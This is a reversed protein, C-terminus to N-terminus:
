FRILVCRAPAGDLGKFKLPLCVCFYHGIPVHHLALGEIIPIGARLLLRHNVLDSHAARDISLTDIGIAKIGQQIFFQILEPNLHGAGAVQPNNVHTKFLLITDRLPITEKFNDAHMGEPDNLMVVEADGILSSLSVLDITKADPIIHAPADVHTGTHSNFEIWTIAASSTETQSVQVTFRPPPDGPYVSMQPHISASIDFIEM